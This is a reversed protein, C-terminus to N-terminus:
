VPAEYRTVSSRTATTIFIIGTIIFLIGLWKYISIYEGLIYQSILVVWVFSTSFIPYLVTVEGGKFAAMLFVAGIAYCALGAVAFITISPLAAAGKKFFFQASATFLTCLIVLGIAWKKTKM